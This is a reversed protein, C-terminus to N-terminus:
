DDIRTAMLKENNGLYVSIAPVLCTIGDLLEPNGTMHNTSGSGLTWKDKLDYNILKMNQCCANWPEETFNVWSAFWMGENNTQREQAFSEPNEKASPVNDLRTRHRRSDPNGPENWCSKLIDEMYRQCYPKRSCDGQLNSRSFMAYNWTSQRLQHRDRREEQSHSNGINDHLRSGLSSYMELSRRREFASGDGRGM